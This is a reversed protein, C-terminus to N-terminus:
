GNGSSSPIYQSNDCDESSAYSDSKTTDVKLGLEMEVLDIMTYLSKRPNAYLVIEGDLDIIFKSYNWPINKIKGTETNMFCKTKKRLLKFLPHANEGNVNCKEMLKFRAGMKRAFEKIEATTGPEQNM